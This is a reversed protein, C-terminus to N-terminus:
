ERRGPGPSITPMQWDLGGSLPLFGPEGGTAPDKATRAEVLSAFEERDLLEDRRRSHFAEAYGNEWPSGPEIYLVEAVEGALWVRLGQAIFEPGNDSRIHRPAGRRRIVGALVAVVAAATMGHRVELVLCERTYEDVVSLWKL